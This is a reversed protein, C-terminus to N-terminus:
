TTVTDVIKCFSAAHRVLIDVTHIATIRVTGTASQSYPDALIDLGRWEGIILDAWNGFLLASLNTGTSKTLNGPVNDSPHKSRTAVLIVAPSHVEACSVVAWATSRAADRRPQERGKAPSQGTCSPSALMLDHRPVRSWDAQQLDQCKHELDPHNLEHYDVAGQWHNAAWVVRVGAAEAGGTFGGLGAFLDAAKM